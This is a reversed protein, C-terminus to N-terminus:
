IPMQLKSVDFSHVGAVARQLPDRPDHAGGGGVAAAAAIVKNEPRCQALTRAVLAHTHAARPRLTTDGM